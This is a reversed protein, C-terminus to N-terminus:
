MLSRTTLQHMLLCLLPLVQPEGMKPAQDYTGDYISELIKNLCEYEQRYWLNGTGIKPFLISRVTDPLQWTGEKDSIDVEMIEQFMKEVDVYVFLKKM